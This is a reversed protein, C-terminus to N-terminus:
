SIFTDLASNLGVIVSNACLNLTMNGLGVGAILAPDNLQGIFILNIIEGAMTAVNMAVAPVILSTMMYFRECWTDTKYNELESTKV